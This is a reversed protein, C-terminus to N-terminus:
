YVYGSLDDCVRAFVVIGHWRRQARHTPRRSREAVTAPGGAEAQAQRPQRGSSSRGANHCRQTVDYAPLSLLPPWYIFSITFYYKTCSHVADLFCQGLKESLVSPAPTPLNRVKLYDFLFVQTSRCHPSRRAGRASGRRVVVARRRWQRVQCSIQVCGGRAM